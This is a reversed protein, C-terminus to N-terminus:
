KKDSEIPLEDYISWEIWSGDYNKVNDYGLLRLVFWTNASRVASQCYSIVETDKTVGVEAYMKKLDEASKITEDENLNMSWGIFKSGPIRGARYAGKKISEGTFEDMERADIIVTKGDTLAAKVDDLVAIPATNPAKAKYTTAKIEPGMGLETEGGLGKWYDYGGDLVQMNKHGFIYLAWWVRASDYLGKDDYLVVHTKETIGLKGMLAEWQAQDNLMGTLDRGQVIDKVEPAEYDPRWISVAGKIHGIAFKKPDRVDLIRVNKEKSLEKLGEVDILMEPRAYGKKAISASPKINSSGCATLVLSLSILAIVLFILSSKRKMFM